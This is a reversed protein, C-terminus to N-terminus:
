KVLTLTALGSGGASTVRALYVGSPLRQGADNLGDWPISHQGADLEANVLGRVRRGRTDYVALQVPGAQGTTFRITTRPNFPNPYADLDFDGATPLPENEATALGLGYVALYSKGPYTFPVTGNGFDVPADANGVLATLNDRSYCGWFSIHAQSDLVRVGQFAGGSTYRAVFATRDGGTWLTESGYFLNGWFAGPVLIDGNALEVSSSAYSYSTATDTAPVVDAWLCTGNPTFRALFFDGGGGLSSLNGFGPFAVTGKLHGSFLFDGNGLKNGCYIEIGGGFSVDIFQCWDVTGDPTLHALFGARWSPSSFNFGGINTSGRFMGNWHAGGEGDPWVNVSYDRQGTDTYTQAWRFGGSSDLSFVAGDRTGSPSYDVGGLQIPTQFGGCWLAQGSEDESLHRNVFTGEVVHVWQAARASNFRVIALGKGASSTYTQGGLHFSSEFPFSLLFGDEQPPTMRVLGTITTSDVLVDAALFASSPAFKSLILMGNGEAGDFVTPGFRATQEPPVMCLALLNGDLDQDVQYFVNNTGDNSHVWSLDITALTPTACVLFVLPWIHRLFM